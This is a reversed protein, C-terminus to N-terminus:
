TAADGGDVTLTDGFHVGDTPTAQGLQRLQPGDEIFAGSGGAGGAGGTDHVCQHFNLITNSEDLQGTGGYGGGGGQLQFSIATIGQPITFTGHTGNWDCFVTNARTSSSVATRRVADPGCPNSFPDPQWM